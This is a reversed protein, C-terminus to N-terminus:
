NELLGDPTMDQQMEKSAVEKFHRLHRFFACFFDKLLFKM